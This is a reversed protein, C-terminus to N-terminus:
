NIKLEKKRAAMIQRLEKIADVYGNMYARDSENMAKGVQNLSDMQQNSATLERKRLDDDIAKLWDFINLQVVPEDVQKPSNSQKTRSPSKSSNPSGNSGLHTKPTQSPTPEDVTGMPVSYNAHRLEGESINNDDAYNWGEDDLRLLARYDRLQRKNKFGLANMLRDGQGRPIRWENGDEVQAYFVRDCQGHQVM